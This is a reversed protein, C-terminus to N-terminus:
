DFMDSVNAAPVFESARTLGGAIRGNHANCQAVLQERTVPIVGDAGSKSADIMLLLEYETYATHSGTYGGGHQDNYQKAAKFQLISALRDADNWTSRAGGLSLKLFNNLRIGEEIGGAIGGAVRGNHANCQVVLQERTVRIVGIEGSQSATIMLSLEYETYATHSGTYGGGHQDNYQKAEEFQLNAAFRDADNWTSRAGGLSLKLFNNLRIGEEIGGAIGGAVRGNHASCQVLIGALTLADKGDLHKSAQVMMDIEEKTYATESGEYGGRLGEIRNVERAAATQEFAALRQAPTWSGRPGGLSVQLFRRLRIGEELGGKIGNHSCWYSYSVKASLALIEDNSAFQRNSLHHLRDYLFAAGFHSIPDDLCVRLSNGGLDGSALISSAMHPDGLSTGPSIFNSGLMVIDVFIPNKAYRFNTAMQQTDLFIGIIAERDLARQSTGGETIIYAGNAPTACDLVLSNCVRNLLKPLPNGGRGKGFHLDFRDTNASTFGSNVIGIPLHGKGANIAALLHSEIEIRGLPKYPRFEPTMLRDYFSQVTIRNLDDTWLIAYNQSIKTSHKTMKDRSTAKSQVEKLMAKTWPKGIRDAMPGNSAIVDKVSEVVDSLKSSLLNAGTGSLAMGLIKSLIGPTLANSKEAENLQEISANGFSNPNQMKDIAAMYNKRGKLVYTAVEKGDTTPWVKVIDINDHGGFAKISEAASDEIADSRRAFVILLKKNQKELEILLPGLWIIIIIVWPFSSIIICLTGKDPVENAIELTTTGLSNLAKVESLAEPEGEENFTPTFIGSKSSISGNEDFLTIMAASSTQSLTLIEEEELKKLVDAASPSVRLFKSTPDVPFGSIRAPKSTLPSPEINISIDDINDEESASESITDDSSEVTVEPPIEAASRAVPQSSKSGRNKLRGTTHDGGYEQEKEDDDDQGEEDDVGQELNTQSKLKKEKPAGTLSTILVDYNPHTSFLPLTKIDIGTNQGQRHAHWMPRRRSFLNAFFTMCSKSPEQFEIVVPAEDLLVSPHFDYSPPPVRYFVWETDILFKVVLPSGLLELYASAVYIGSMEVANGRSIELCANKLGPDGIRKSLWRAFRMFKLVKATHEDDTDSKEFVTAQYLCVFKEFGTRPSVFTRPTSEEKPTSSVSSLNLQPLTTNKVKGGGILRANFDAHLPRNQDFSFDGVLKKLDLIESRGQRLTINEMPIDFQQAIAPLVEALLQNSSFTMTISNQRPDVVRVTVPSSNPGPPRLLTEEKKVNGSATSPIAIGTPYVAASSAKSM